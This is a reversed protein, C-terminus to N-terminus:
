LQRSRVSRKLKNVVEWTMRDRDGYNLRGGAEMTGGFGRTSLEGKGVNKKKCGMTGGWVWKVSMFKGGRGGRESKQEVGDFTNV